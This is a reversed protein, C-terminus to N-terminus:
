DSENVPPIKFITDPLLSAEEEPLIKIRLELPPVAPDLPNMDKLEPEAFVPLEPKTFILLPEAVAPRPPATITDTPLPM